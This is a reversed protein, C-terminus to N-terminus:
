AKPSVGIRRGRTGQAGVIIEDPVVKRFEALTTVIQRSDGNNKVELIVLDAAEKLAAIEGPLVDLQKAEDVAKHNRVVLQVFDDEPAEAGTIDSVM